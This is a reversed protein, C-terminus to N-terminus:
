RSFVIVLHLTVHVAIVVGSWFSPRQALDRAPESAMLLCASALANSSAGMTAPSHALPTVEQYPMAISSLLRPMGVALRRPTHLAVHTRSTISRSLYGAGARRERATLPASSTTDLSDKGCGRKPVVRPLRTM